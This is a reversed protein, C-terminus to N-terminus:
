KTLVLEEMKHNLALSGAIGTINKGEAVLQERAEAELCKRDSESLKKILEVAKLHRTLSEEVKKAEEAKKAAIKAAKAKQEVIVAEEAERDEQEPLGYDEALAKNLLNRYNKNWHKNTYIINRAAYEKGHKKLARRILDRVVIQKRFREESILAVLEEFDVETFVPKKEENVKAIHYEQRFIFFRISSISRNNGKKIEEFEFFIDSREKLEKQAVLLVKQKFNGYLPYVDDDLGLMKRLLPVELERKGVKEYQKMLEYLRFSFLSKFKIAIELSYATFCRKLNLLYPKLKPSFCLTLTGGNPDYEASSLWATQYFGGNEKPFFIVKKLLGDTVNKINSYLSNVSVGTLDAIEKVSMRYNKFDSDEPNIQAALNLILRSEQLSLKYCAEVLSNSKIVLEQTVIAGKMMFIM